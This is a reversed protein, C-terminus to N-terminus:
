SQHTLNGVDVIKPAPVAQEGLTRFVHLFQIAGQMRLHNAAAENFNESQQMALQAQFELLAFDSARQFETRQILERHHRIFDASELFRAKPRPNVNPTAM